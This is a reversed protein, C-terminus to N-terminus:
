ITAIANFGLATRCCDRGARIARSNQEQLQDRLCTREVLGWAFRHVRM